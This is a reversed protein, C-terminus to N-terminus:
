DPIVDTWIKHHKIMSITAESINYKEAILRSKVKESILKKIEKVDKETLKGKKEKWSIPLHTGFMFSKAGKQAESLAKRHEESHKKGKRIKSMKARAEDTQHWGSLRTDGQNVNYTPIKNNLIFIIKEQEVNISEQETTFEHLIEFTFNEVGYKAIAAHIVYFKRPYKEKGGKAIKIHIRFRKLADKSRGIYIKGNLKNTIKYVYFM